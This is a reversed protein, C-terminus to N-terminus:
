CYQAYEPKCHSMRRERAWVVCDRALGYEKGTLWTVRGDRTNATMSTTLDDLLELEKELAELENEPVGYEDFYDHVRNWVFCRRYEVDHAHKTLSFPYRKVQKM